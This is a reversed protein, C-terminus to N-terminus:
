NTCKLSTWNSKKEQKVISLLNSMSCKNKAARSCCPIKTYKSLFPNPKWLYQESSKPFFIKFPTIFFLYWAPVLSLSIIVVERRNLQPCYLNSRKNVLYWSFRCLTCSASQPSNINWLYFMGALKTTQQRSHQQKDKCCAVSNNCFKLQSM